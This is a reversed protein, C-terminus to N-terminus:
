DLNRKRRKRREKAIHDTKLLVIINTVMVAFFDTSLTLAHSVHDIEGHQAREVIQHTDYVFLGFFILLGVYPEVKYVAVSPGFIAPALQLWLIFALCSSLLGCLYLFERGKAFVAAVSFCTLTLATGMLITLLVSSDLKIATKVAPGVSAGELVSALMLILFRKRQDYYCYPIGHARVVVRYSPPTTKLWVLSQFFGTLTLWGAINCLLHLYVGVACAVLAFFLTLYVLKLHQQVPPSIPSSNTMLSERWWSLRLIDM